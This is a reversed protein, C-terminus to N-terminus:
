TDRDDLIAVGPLTKGELLELSAGGGTSIHTMREGFGMKFAAFATEGGGLITMRDGKVMAEAIQRTGEGFPEVEFVGMPGNWLCTRSDAIIKCFEDTTKPGIDLGMLHSPISEAGVIQVMSSETISKAAKFDVPLVLSKKMDNAKNMIEKAVKVRDPEFISNGINYGQAALFTFAMGGGILITDIKELLRNLILIKDSVKKGGFVGLFPREPSELANSLYTLEKEMLLGAVAPLHHAIGETSAHARHATGFADNVYLDAYSALKKAFEPDNKTEEPHFRTNELLLIEGPNLSDVAEEVEPGLCSRAYSITYGNQLYKFIPFLRLADDPGKPRGLHTLLILSAGEQLIYDITPLVSRIRLDDTIEHEDNLPVNFDVRMIVRKGDLPVDRITKKNFSGMQPEDTM